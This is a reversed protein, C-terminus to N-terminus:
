LHRGGFVFDSSGVFLVICLVSCFLEVFFFFSFFLTMQFQNSLPRLNRRLVAFIDDTPENTFLALYAFPALEM